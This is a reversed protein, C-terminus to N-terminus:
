IAFPAVHVFILITVAVPLLKADNWLQGGQEFLFRFVFIFIYPVLHVLNYPFPTPNILLVGLAGCLLLAEPLLGDWSLAAKRRRLVEGFVLALGATGLALLLPTQGLLRSLAVWPAFRANGSGSDSVRRFM